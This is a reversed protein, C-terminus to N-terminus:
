RRGSKIMEARLIANMRTQYGDGQGKLWALIDSDLRVTLQQKIPRYFKGREADLWQASTTEPMDSLDIEAEPKAALAALEKRVKEPVKSM